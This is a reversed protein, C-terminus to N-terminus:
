PCTYKNSHDKGYEVAIMYSGKWNTKDLIDRCKNCWYTTDGKSAECPNKFGWTDKCIKIDKFVWSEMSGLKSYCFLYSGGTQPEDCFATGSTLAILILTISITIVKM